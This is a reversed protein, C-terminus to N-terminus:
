HSGSLFNFTLGFCAASVLSTIKMLFEKLQESFTLFNMSFKALKTHFNINCYYKHIDSARTANATFTLVDNTSKWLRSLNNNWLFLDSIFPIIM